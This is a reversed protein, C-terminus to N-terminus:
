LYAYNIPERLMSQVQALPVRLLMAREDNVGYSIIVSDGQIVLGAAFEIGRGEFCFPLSVKRLVANNDLLCFRHQYVRRPVTGPDFDVSEHVLCLRQGHRPMLVVQSGGKFSRAVAPGYLPSNITWVQNTIPLLEVVKPPDLSYVWRPGAPSGTFPMWNKEHHRGDGVIRLNQCENYMDVDAVAIQCVAQPHNDRVTASFSWRGMSRFLRCDEFGQVLYSKQGYVVGSTDLKLWDGFGLEPSVTGIYNRTRIVGDDDHIVYRGSEEIHYNSSRVICRMTDSDAAISPNFLSWGDPKAINDKGLTIQRSGTYPPEGFVPGGIRSLPDLYWTANRRVCEEIHSPPTLPGSLIRECAEAGALHDKQYSSISLALDEDWWARETM